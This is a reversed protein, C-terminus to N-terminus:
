FRLGRHRARETKRVKNGKELSPLGNKLADAIRYGMEVPLKEIEDLFLTGGMALELKGAIPQNDKDLSGFFQEALYM